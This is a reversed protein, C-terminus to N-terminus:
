LLIIRVTSSNRYRTMSSHSRRSWRTILLATLCHRQRRREQTATFPPWKSCDRWERTYYGVSLTM